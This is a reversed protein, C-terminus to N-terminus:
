RGWSNKISGLNKLASLNGLEKPIHGTLKNGDLDLITLASLKGLEKPIQGTLQNISLDLHTVQENSNLKIEDDKMKKKIFEDVDEQLGLHDRLCRRLTELDEPDIRDM